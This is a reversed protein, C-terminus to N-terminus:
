SALPKVRSWIYLAFLMVALLETTRGALQAEDSRFWAGGAVLLVGLNILAFAGWALTINGYRRDGRFRPLIWVAMGMALEVTWGILALEVHLPLLRGVSPSFPIGKNWLMLAGFTFGVGFHLLAARIMWVSLRPMM